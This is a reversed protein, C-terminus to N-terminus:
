GKQATKNLANAIPNNLPRLNSRKVGFPLKVGSEPFQRLILPLGKTAFATGAVAVALGKGIDADAMAVLGLGAFALCTAAFLRGSPFGGDALQSGAVSAFTVGAATAIATQDDM